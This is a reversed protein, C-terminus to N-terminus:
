AHRHNPHRFPQPQRRHKPVPYRFPIRKKEEKAKADSVTVTEEVAPLDCCRLLCLEAAIKRDASRDLEGLVTQLATLGSMLRSLPVSKTFHRLDEESFAGSMLAGGSALKCLLVDRYLSALQSLVSSVDKGDAYLRSLRNLAGHADAHLLDSLLGCIEDNEALGICRLVHARDIHAGGSCQDLLSVADRFSGDALRSLLESAEETLDM